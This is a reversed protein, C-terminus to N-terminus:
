PEGYGGGGVILHERVFCSSCFLFLSGGRPEVLVFFLLLATSFEM